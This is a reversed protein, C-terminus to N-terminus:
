ELIPCWISMQAWRRRARSHLALESALRAVICDRRTVCVGRALWVPQHRVARCSAPDDRGSGSWGDGAGAGDGLAASVLHLDIALVGSSGRRKGRSGACLLDSLVAMIWRAAAVVFRHRLRVGDHLNPHHPSPWLSRDVPGATPLVRGAHGGRHRIRQLHSRPEMRIGCGAAERFRLVHLRIALRIGGDSRFLGSSRCALRLLRFRIGHTRVANRLTGRNTGESHPVLESIGESTSQTRLASPPHSITGSQAAAM